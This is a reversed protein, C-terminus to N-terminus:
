NDVVIGIGAHSGDYQYYKTCGLASVQVTFSLDEVGGSYTMQNPPLIVVSAEGWPSFLDTFAIGSGSLDGTLSGAPSVNIIKYSVSTGEPLPPKIIILGM